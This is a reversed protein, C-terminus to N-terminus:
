FTLKQKVVWIILSTIEISIVMLTTENLQRGEREFSAM